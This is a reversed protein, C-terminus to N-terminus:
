PGETVEWLELTIGLTKIHCIFGERVQGYGNMRAKFGTNKWAKAKLAGGM